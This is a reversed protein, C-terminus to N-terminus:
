PGSPTSSFFFMLSRQHRESTCSRSSMSPSSAAMRICGLTHSADPCRAPNTSGKTSQLCHLFRNRASSGRMLPVGPSGVVRHGTHPFWPVSVAGRM